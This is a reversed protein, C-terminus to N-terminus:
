QWSKTKIQQAYTGVRILHKFKQPLEFDKNIYIISVTQAYVFVELIKWYISDYQSRPIANEESLRSIVSSKWCQEM